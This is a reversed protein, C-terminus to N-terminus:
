GAGAVLGRGVRVVAAYEGPAEGRADRGRGGVAHAALWPRICSHHYCPSWTTAPGVLRRRVKAGPNRPARDGPTPVEEEAPAQAGITRHPGSPPASPRRPRLVSARRMKANLWAANLVEDASPTSFPPPGAAAAAAVDAAVGAPAADLLALLHAPLPTGEAAAGAPPTGAVAAGGGGRARRAPARGARDRAADAHRRPRRAGRHDTQRRHRRQEVAAAANTRREAASARDAPPAAAVVAAREGGAAAASGPRSAPAQRVM